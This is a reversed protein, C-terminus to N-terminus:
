HERQQLKSYIDKTAAETKQNLLLLTGDKLEIRIYPEFINVMILWAKENNSLRYHGKQIKGLSLGNTRIKVSPKIRQWELSKIDSYDFQLGYSGGIIVENGEFTIKNPKAM